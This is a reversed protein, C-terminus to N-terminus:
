KKSDRIQQSTWAEGIRELYALLDNHHYKTIDARHWNPLQENWADMQVGIWPNLQMKRGNIDLWFERGSNNVWYFRISNPQEM